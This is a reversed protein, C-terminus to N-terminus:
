AAACSGREGGNQGKLWLLCAEAPMVYVGIRGLERAASEDIGSMADPVLVVRYDRAGAEYITARGTTDFNCGCVVLTNVGLGRLTGDLPTDHFAGWRSKYFAWERDGMPQMDGSLLRHPDLRVPTEPQLEDILDAGSTGPMLVRLGEEVAERRFNDVNSGDPRYLRVAHFLPAGHCRFGEVLRRMAVIASDVRCTKLPSGKITFDRQANVTLLAVRDRQPVTYNPM